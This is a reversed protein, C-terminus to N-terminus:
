FPNKHYPKVLNRISIYLDLRHMGLREHTNIFEDFNLIIGSIQSWLSPNM